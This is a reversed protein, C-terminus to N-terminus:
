SRTVDFVQQATLLEADRTTVDGHRDRSRQAARRGAGEGRRTRGACREAFSVDAVPQAATRLRWEDTVHFVQARTISDVVAVNRHAKMRCKCQAEGRLRALIEDDRRHEDPGRSGVM